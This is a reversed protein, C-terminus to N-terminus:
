HVSVMVHIKFQMHVAAFINIWTRMRSSSRLNRLAPTFKVELIPKPASCSLFRSCHPVAEHTKQVFGRFWGLSLTHCQISLRPLFGDSLAHLLTVKKM